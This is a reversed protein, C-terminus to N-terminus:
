DSQVRVDIATRAPQRRRPGGLGNLNIHTPTGCDIWVAANQYAVARNSLDDVLEEHVAASFDCHDIEVKIGYALQAICTMGRQVSIDESRSSENFRAYFRGAAEDQTRINFAGSLDDPLREEEIRLQANEGAAGMQTVCGRQVTRTCGNNGGTFCFDANGKGLRYCRGVLHGTAVRGVM